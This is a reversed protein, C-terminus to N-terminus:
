DLLRSLASKVFIARVEDLRAAVYEAAEREGPGSGGGYNSTDIRILERCLDVVEGAPDDPVEGPPKDRAADAAARSRNVVGPRERTM